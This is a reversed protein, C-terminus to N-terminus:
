QKVTNKLAAAPKFAVKKSAAIQLEEGTQPNRGKRAATERTEFTGFGHLNIKEGSALAGTITEFVADVTATADKKTIGTKNTVETTLQQKNM